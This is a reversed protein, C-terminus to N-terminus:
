KTVNLMKFIDTELQNFTDLLTQVENKPISKSNKWRSATMKSIKFTKVIRNISWLEWKFAFQEIRTM